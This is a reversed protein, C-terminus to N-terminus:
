SLSDGFIQKLSKMKCATMVAGAKRMIGDLEDETGGLAQFATVLHPLAKTARSEVGMTVEMQMVLGVAQLSMGVSQRVKGHLDEKGGTIREAAAKARISEEDALPEGEAFGAQFMKLAKYTDDDRFCKDFTSRLLDNDIDVGSAAVWAMVGDLDKARILERAQELTQENLKVM